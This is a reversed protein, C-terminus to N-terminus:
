STALRPQLWSILAEVAVSFLFWLPYYDLRILGNIHYGQRYEWPCIGTCYRLLGGVIYEVMLIGIGFIMGRGWWKLSDLRKVLPPFTIATLGYLPFMWIYSHGKLALGLNPQQIIDYIATFFIEVTVGVCGM